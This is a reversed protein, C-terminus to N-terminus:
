VCVIICIIYTCVYVTCATGVTCVCMVVNQIICMSYYMYYVYTCVCKCATSVTYVCMNLVNQMICMNYYMNYYVYM